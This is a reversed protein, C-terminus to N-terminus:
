FVIYTLILVFGMVLSILGIPRATKLLRDDMDRKVDLRNFFEETDIWKKSSNNIRMIFRPCFLFLIAIVLNLVGLWLGVTLATDLDM